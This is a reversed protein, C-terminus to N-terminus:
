SRAAFTPKKDKVGDLWVTLLGSCMGSSAMRIYSLTCAPPAAQLAQASLQRTLDDKGSATGDDGSFARGAPERSPRECGPQDIIEEEEEEEKGTSAGTGCGSRSSPIDL